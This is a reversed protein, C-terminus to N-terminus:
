LCLRFFLFASLFLIYSCSICILISKIRMMCIGKWKNRITENEKVSIKYASIHGNNLSSPLDARETATATTSSIFFHRCIHFLPLLCVIYLGSKFHFANRHLHRKAVCKMQKQKSVFHLIIAFGTLHCFRLFFSLVSPSLSLRFFLFFFFLFSSFFFRKRYPQISNPGTSNRNSNNCGHCHLLAIFTMHKNDFFLLFHILYWKQKTQETYYRFIRVFLLFLLRCQWRQGNKSQAHAHAHTHTLM